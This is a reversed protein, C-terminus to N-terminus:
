ARLLLKELEDALTKKEDDALFGGLEVWVGSAGILLQLPYWGRRRLEVRAWARPFSVRSEPRRARRGKEVRVQSADMSVVECDMGREAVWWVAALLAIIELGAFPLVLWYGLSALVGSVTFLLLSVAAIFWLSQRWTLSRNPKIVVRCEANDPTCYTSVM